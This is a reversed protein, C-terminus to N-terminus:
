KKIRNGLEIVYLLDAKVMERTPPGTVGNEDEEWDGAASFDGAMEHCHDVFLEQEEVPMNNFIETAIPNEGRCLLEDLLEFKNEM